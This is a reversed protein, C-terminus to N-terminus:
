EVELAEAIRILGERLERSGILSSPQTGERILDAAERFLRAKKREPTEIRPGYLVEIVQMELARPDQDAIARYVGSEEGLAAQVIVWTKGPPPQLDAM